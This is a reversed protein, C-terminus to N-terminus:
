SVTASLDTAYARLTIDFTTHGEITRQKGCAEVVYNGAIEADDAATVVFKDGISPLVNNTNAAALTSGSPYVRLSLEEQQNTFVLGIVDGSGDKIEHKDASKKFDEGNNKVNLVTAAGTYTFATGAVGWCVGLGKQIAPM